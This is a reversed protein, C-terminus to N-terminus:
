HTIKELTTLSILIADSSIVFLLREDNMDEVVTIDGDPAKGLESDARNGNVSEAENTGEIHGIRGDTSPDSSVMQKDLKSSDDEGNHTSDVMIDEEKKVGLERSKDGGEDGAGNVGDPDGAILRRPQALRELGGQSLQPFQDQPRPIVENSVRWKDNRLYKFAILLESFAPM